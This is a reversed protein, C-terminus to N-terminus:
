ARGDLSRRAGPQSAAVAPAGPVDRGTPPSGDRVAVGGFLRSMAAVAVGDEGRESSSSRGRAVRRDAAGREWLGHKEDRTLFARGHNHVVMPVRVGDDHIWCGYRLPAAAGERRLAELMENGLRDEIFAGRKVLGKRFVVRRYFDVQVAVPARVRTDVSARGGGARPGAGGSFAFAGHCQSARRAATM